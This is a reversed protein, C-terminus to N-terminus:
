CRQSIQKKRRRMRRRKRVTMNKQVKLILRDREKKRTPMKKRLSAVKM